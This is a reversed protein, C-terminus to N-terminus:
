EYQGAEQAFLGSGRQQWNCVEADAKLSGGGCPADDLIIVVM